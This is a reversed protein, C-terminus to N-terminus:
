IVKTQELSSQIISDQEFSKKYSNFTKEIAAEPFPDTKRKKFEPGRVKAVIGDNEEDSESSIHLNRKPNSQFDDSSGVLKIKIKSQKQKKIPTEEDSESESIRKRKNVKPKTKKNVVQSTSANIGGYREMYAQSGISPARGIYKGNRTLIAM